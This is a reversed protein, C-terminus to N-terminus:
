LDIYNIITTLKKTSRCYACNECRVPKIKGTKINKVHEIKIEIEEFIYDIISDPIQIIAKDPENLRDYADGIRIYAKASLEIIHEEEKGRGVSSEM